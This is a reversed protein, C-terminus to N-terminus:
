VSHHKIGLEEVHEVGEHDLLTIWLGWGLRTEPILLGGPLRRRTPATRELREATILQPHTFLTHLTTAAELAAAQMQEWSWTLHKQVQYVNFADITEFTPTTGDPEVYGAISNGMRPRQLGALIDGAGMLMFREWEMIHGVVQLVSRQEDGLVVRQAAREATIARVATTYANFIETHLQAFRAHRESPSLTSLEVLLPYFTAPPM